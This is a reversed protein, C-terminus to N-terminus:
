SNSLFSKVALPRQNLNIKNVYFGAFHLVEQRLSKGVAKVRIRALPGGAIGVLDKIELLSLPLYFVM